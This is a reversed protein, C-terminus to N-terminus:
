ASLLAMEWNLGRSFHVADPAVCLGPLGGPWTKWLAILEGSDKM